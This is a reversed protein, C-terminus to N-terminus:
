NKEAHLATRIRKRIGFYGGKIRNFGRNMDKREFLGGFLQILVDARRKRTIASDSDGRTTFLYNLFLQQDPKIGKGKSQQARIEDVGNSM